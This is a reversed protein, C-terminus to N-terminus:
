DSFALPTFDTSGALLDELAIVGYIDWSTPHTYLTGDKEVGRVTGNKTDYAALVRGGQADLIRINQVDKGQIYRQQTLETKVGNRCFYQHTTNDGTGYGNEDRGCEDVWVLWGDAFGTLSYYCEWGARTTPFGDAVPTFSDAAANLYGVEGSQYNCNALGSRSGETLIQYDNQYSILDRKEMGDGTVFVTGADREYRQQPTCSGNALDVTCIQMAKTLADNSQIMKAFTMQQGGVELLTYMEPAYEGTGDPLDDWTCIKQAQGGTKDVAWLTQRRNDDTLVSYYLNADDVAVGRGVVSLGPEVEALLIRETHDSNIREWRYYSTEDNYYFALLYVEDGDGYCLTVNGDSWAPCAASDHACGPLSCVPRADGTQEDIAYVLARGMTDTYNIEWDNFAQYYVGDAAATLMRLAGSGIGQPPEAPAATAQTTETAATLTPTSDPAAHGCATLVLALAATIALYKKM